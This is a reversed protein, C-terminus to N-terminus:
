PYMFLLSLCVSLHAFIELRGNATTGEPSLFQSFPSPSANKHENEMGGCYQPKDKQRRRQEGKGGIFM